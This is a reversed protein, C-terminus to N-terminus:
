GCPGLCATVAAPAAHPSASRASTATVSPLVVLSHRWAYTHVNDREDDAELGSERYPHPRM